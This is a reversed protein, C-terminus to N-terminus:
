LPYMIIDFYAQTLQSSQSIRIILESKQSIIPQYSYLCYENESSPRPRFINNNRIACEFRNIVIFVIRLYNGRSELHFIYM